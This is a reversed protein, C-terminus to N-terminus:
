EVAPSAPKFRADCLWVDGSWCDREYTFGDNLTDVCGIPYLGESIARARDEECGWTRPRVACPDDSKREGRVLWDVYALISIWTPAVRLEWLDQRM